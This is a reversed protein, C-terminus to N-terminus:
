SGTARRVFHREPARVVEVADLDDLAPEASTVDRERERPTRGIQRGGVREEVQSELILLQGGLDESREQGRLHPRADQRGELARDVHVEGQLTRQAVVETPEHTARDTEVSYSKVKVQWAVIPIILWLPPFFLGILALLAISNAMAPKSVTLTDADQEHAGEIESPEILGLMLADVADTKLAIGEIYGGELSYPIKIGQGEQGNQQQQIQEGAVYLKLKGQDTLPIQTSEVKKVNDYRAYIHKRFFIGTQAEVHQAHFTVRQKKVRMSTLVAMPVPMLLLFPVFLLVLPGAFVAAILLGLIMLGILVWAGVNQIAWIKPGFSQKLEGQAADEPDIGCQRLLAPLDLQDADIHLLNLPQPSGISWIQVSLTNFMGDLPSRNIQVGTVKDYAFQQQNSGLFSYSSAMSDRGITFTTQTAKIFMAGAAFFWVPLFPLLQLVAGREAPM